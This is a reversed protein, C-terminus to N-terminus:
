LKKASFIKRDGVIITIKGGIHLLFIVGWLGSFLYKCLLCIIVTDTISRDTRKTLVTEMTNEGTIFWFVPDIGVTNIQVIRLHLTLITGQEAFVFGDTHGDTERSDIIVHRAPHLAGDLVVEDMDIGAFAVVFIVVAGTRHRWIHLAVNALGEFVVTPRLFGDEATVDLFIKPLRTLFYLYKRNEKTSEWFLRVKASIKFPISELITGKKVSKLIKSKDLAKAIM